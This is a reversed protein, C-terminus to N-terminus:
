KAARGLRGKVYATDRHECGSQIMASGIQVKAKETITKEVVSPTSLSAMRTRSAPLHRPQVASLQVYTAHYERLMPAVSISVSANFKSLYRPLPLSLIAKTLLKAWEGLM